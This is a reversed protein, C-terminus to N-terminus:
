ALEDPRPLGIVKRVVARGLRLLASRRKPPFASEDMAPVFLAGRASALEYTPYAM